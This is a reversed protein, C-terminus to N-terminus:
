VDRIQPFHHFQISFPFPRLTSPHRLTLRGGAPNRVFQVCEVGLRYGNGDSRGIGKGLILDFIMSILTEYLRFPNLM